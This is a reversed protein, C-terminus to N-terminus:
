RNAVSAVVSVISKSRTNYSMREQLEEPKYSLKAWVTGIYTQHRIYRRDLRVKIHEMLTEPICFIITAEFKATRM